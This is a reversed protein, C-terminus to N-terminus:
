IVNVGGGGRGIIGITSNDLVGAGSGGGGPGGGGGGGDIGEGSGESACSTGEGGEDDGAVVELLSGEADIPAHLTLGGGGRGGTSLVTFAVAPAVLAM